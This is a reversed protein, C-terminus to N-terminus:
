HTLGLARLNGHVQLVPDSRNMAYFHIGPAGNKLLEACQRTAIEM